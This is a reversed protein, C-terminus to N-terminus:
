SQPVERDRLDPETGMSSLMPKKRIDRIFTGNEAVLNRREM